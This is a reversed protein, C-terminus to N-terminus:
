KQIDESVLKMLIGKTEMIELFTESFEPAVLVRIRSNGGLNPHAQWIDVLPM